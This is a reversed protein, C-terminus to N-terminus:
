GTAGEYFDMSFGCLLQLFMLVYDMPGVRLLHKTPYFISTGEISIRKEM